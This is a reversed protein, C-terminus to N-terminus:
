NSSHREQAHMQLGIVLAACARQGYIYVRTVRDHAVKIAVGSQQQQM